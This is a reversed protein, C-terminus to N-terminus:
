EEYHYLQGDRIVLADFIEATMLKDVEATPKNVFSNHGNTKKFTNLPVFPVELIKYRVFIVPLYREVRFM